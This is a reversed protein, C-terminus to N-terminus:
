NWCSDIAGCWGRDDYGGCKGKLPSGIPMDKKKFIDFLGM